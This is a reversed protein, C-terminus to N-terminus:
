QVRLKGTVSLVWRMSKHFWDATECFMLPCAGPIVAINHKRCLQIAKESVSSTNSRHSESSVKHTTGASCHMWVRPINLAVCQEVIKESNDANTVIIVGDISSPITQLDSYCPDNEFIGASRGVPFVKYRLSKLKRYIGNAPTNRKSSVGVVAIRKQRLFDNVRSTITNM